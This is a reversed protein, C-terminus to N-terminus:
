PLSTQVSTRRYFKGDPRRELGSSRPPRGSTRARRRKDRPRSKVRPCSKGDAITSVRGRPRVIADAWVRQTRTSVALGHPRLGADARVLAADMRVCENGGRGEGGRGGGRHFCDVIRASASAKFFLFLFLFLNFKKQYNNGAQISLFFIQNETKLQWSRWSGRSGRSGRCGQAGRAERTFGRSSSPKKPRTGRTV